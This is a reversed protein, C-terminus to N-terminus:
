LSERPMGHTRKHAPFCRRQTRRIHSPRERRSSYRAWPRNGEVPTDHQRKRPWSGLETRTPWPRGGLPEETFPNPADLERGKIHTSTVLIHFLPLSELYALRIPSDSIAPQLPLPLAIISPYMLAGALNSSYITLIISLSLNLCFEAMIANLIM